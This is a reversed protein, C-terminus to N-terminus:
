FNYWHLFWEDIKTGFHQMFGNIDVDWLPVFFIPYLMLFLAWPKKVLWHYTESLQEEIIEDNMMALALIIVAYYVIVALVWRGYDIKLLFDPLMTGAGIIVVSYKIKDIKTNARKIVKSFFRITIIIYPLCMFTFIPFQVINIKRLENETESLDIGLVEHALLTSHYAGNHALNRAENVIYEYIAAGNSRSFFEFWLFLASAIVFSLLFLVGYKLKKQKNGSFYKYLLLVLIINFYMFVYGQHFMVGIASLPIVLWEAKEYIILLSAILSVLIMFLDVRFFNYGGSFTAITFLLFFMILYECPKLCKERCNRLCLFVFFYLFLFFAGTCIQAFRMTMTYDIMNIPLVKDIIHYITGLLSRSTFGYEYSLALMTSNYSRVIHQYSCVFIVIGFFIMMVMFKYIEKQKPTIRSTHM